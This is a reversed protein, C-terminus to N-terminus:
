CFLMNKTFLYPLNEENNKIVMGSVTLLKNGSGNEKWQLLLIIILTM